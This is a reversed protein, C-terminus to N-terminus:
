RITILVTSLPRSISLWWCWLNVQTSRRSYTAQSACYLRRLQIVEGTLLSTPDVAAWESSHSTIRTLVLRELVKSMTNLNSIPRYSSPDAVELGQQKLLPTIQATRFRTPFSGHQFTLNALNAIIESFVGACTVNADRKVAGSGHVDRSTVHVDIFRRSGM